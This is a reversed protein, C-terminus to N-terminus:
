LRAASRYARSARVAFAFWIAVAGLWAVTLGRSMLVSGSLILAVGTAAEAFPKIVGKVLVITERRVKSHLATYAATLAPDHISRRLVNLGNALTLVAFMALGSPSLFVALGVLAALVPLGFLALRM